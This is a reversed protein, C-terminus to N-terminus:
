KLLPVLRERVEVLYEALGIHQGRERLLTLATKAWCDVERERESTTLVDLVRKASTLGHKTTLKEAKACPDFGLDQVLEKLAKEEAESCPEFGALIWCERKPHALGIVIPVGLKSENRAQELGRRRETQRDDDRILLVGDLKGANLKLLLLARRAAHADAAGPEGDFHGHARLNAAKALAPVERWLLYEDREEHGRWKRYDPLVDETIWDVEDCFVRDALGCATDRDAAAECVVAFALTM